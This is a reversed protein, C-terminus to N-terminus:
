KNDYCDGLKNEEKMNDDENIVLISFVIGAGFGMMFCFVSIILIGISNM